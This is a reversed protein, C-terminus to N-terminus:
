HSVVSFRTPVFNNPCKGSIATFCSIATQSKTLTFGGSINSSINPCKRAAFRSAIWSPFKLMRLHSVLPYKELSMQFYKLPSQRALFWQELNYAHFWYTDKLCHWTTKKSHKLCCFGNVVLGYAWHKWLMFCLSFIFFHLTEVYWIYM